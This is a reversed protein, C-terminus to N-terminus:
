KTLLERSERERSRRLADLWDPDYANLRVFSALYVCVDRPLRVRFRLWAYCLVWTRKCISRKGRSVCCAWCNCTHYFRFPYLVWYDVHGVSLTNNM